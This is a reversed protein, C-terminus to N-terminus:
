LKVDYRMEIPSRCSFNHGELTERTGIKPIEPSGVQSDCTRLKPTELCFPMQIYGRHSIMFFIIFPFTTAKGLRPQPSDQSYTYARREDTCWFHEFLASVLKKNLNHLDRHIISGSRM